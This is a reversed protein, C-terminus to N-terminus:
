ATRPASRLALILIGAALAAVVCLHIVNQVPSVAAKLSDDAAITFVLRQIIRLVFLGVVVFVLPRFRM